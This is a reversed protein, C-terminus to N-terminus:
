ARRRRLCRAPVTDTVTSAGLHLSPLHSAPIATLFRERLGGRQDAEAEPAEITVGVRVPNQIVGGACVGLRGAAKLRVAVTSRSGRKAVWGVQM